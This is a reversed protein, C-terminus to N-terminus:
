YTGWLECAEEMALQPDIAAPSCSLTDAIRSVHIANYEGGPLVQRDFVSNTPDTAYDMARLLGSDLLEDLASSVFVPDRFHNTLDKITVGANETNKARWKIGDWDAPNRNQTVFGLLEYIQPLAPDRRTLTISPEPKTWKEALPLIMEEIPSSILAKLREFITGYFVEYQEPFIYKVYGDVKEAPVCKLGIDAANLLPLIQSFLRLMVIAALGRTAFYFLMRDRERVDSSEIGEFFGHHLGILDELITSKKGFGSVNVRAFVIPAVTLQFGDGADRWYFRIKASSGFEIGPLAILDELASAGLTVTFRFVPVDWDDGVPHVAGYQEIVSLFQSLRLKEGALYYLPHDRETPRIDRRVLTALEEKWAVYEADALKMQPRPCSPVFECGEHAILTATRIQEKPIKYSDTLLATVRRMETGEYVTDDIVLFRQNRYFNLPFFGLMHSLVLRIQKPTVSNARCANQYLHPLHAGYRLVGIVIEDDHACNSFFRCVQGELTDKTLTMAIRVL